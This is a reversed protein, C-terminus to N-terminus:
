QPRRRTRERVFRFKHHLMESRRFAHWFEQSPSSASLFLKIEHNVRTLLIKDGGFFLSLDADTAALVRDVCSVVINIADNVRSKDRVAFFLVGESDIRLSSIEVLESVIDFEVGARPHWELTASQPLAGRLALVMAESVEFNGKIELDIAM